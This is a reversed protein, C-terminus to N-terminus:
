VVRSTDSQIQQALSRPAALGNFRQLALPKLPRASLESLISQFTNRASSSAFNSADVTKISALQTNTNIM